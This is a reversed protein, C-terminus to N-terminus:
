PKSQEPQEAKPKVFVSAHLHAILWKGKQKQFVLTRRNFSEDGPLHFTFIAADKDLMQIHADKPDINQYPPSSKRKRAADFFQKFLSEVEARGTARRPVQVFPFFVTADDSFSNRFTEWELNNFAAVWVDAANQVAMSNSDAKSAKSQIESQAQAAVSSHSFFGLAFTLIFVYRM